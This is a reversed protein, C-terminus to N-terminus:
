SKYRHSQYPRGGTYRGPVADSNYHVPQVQVRIRIREGPDTATHTVFVRGNYRYSVRYGELREEEHVVEETECVREYTVYSRSVTSRRYAYDRGLSAGLLAGAGTLLNKSRRGDGIERGLVGGIIGGVVLPTRSRYGGATQRVPERWCVEQPTTVEVVRVLAEVEVVEADVVFGDGRGAAQSVSPAVVPLSLAGTALISGVLKWQKMAKEQRFGGDGTASPPSAQLRHGVDM